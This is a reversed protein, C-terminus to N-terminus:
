TKAWSKGTKSEVAFKVYDGVITKASEIMHTEVIQKVEDQDEEHCEVLVSDHVINRVWGIGKLDRRSWGMAQLCMDSSTSQPLFALAERLISDKNEKTILSYRRHRGWPTILDEGALVKKKTENRFTVIEPIVDFFAYMGKRAEKVSIKYEDAISFESRGYSLGYVYAKVRIRIEKWLEPPCAEKSQLEPYLIPTLEDFLDREGGNFIDRFYTDGALYSLVRLEAQSYDTEVFVHDPKSPVFLRRITSERPINQMNPNRCALRGTTTGHLLFTPFVRGRSMRKRIGKVYTGYLKAERRHTLLTQVFSLVERAVNESAGLKKTGSDHDLIMGALRDKIMNLADENTTETIIGKDSLYQKVQMPSRPNIGGRKDYDRGEIIKNIDQEINDLRDLYEDTLTDLYERDVGIGNLEVYMLQNSAAVLFDHVDRLSRQGEPTAAQDLDLRKSFMEYLSYTCAVDLANYKYLVDRPIVGYGDGPGVYKKVEDDYQPAGLYEVAMHKLAHIGPREDFVYSALMTDFWLELPGLVPYLGALDFKGNQAILKKNRLLGGLADRVDREGMVGESFVVARKPAYAIGLCLMGYHNPHDYATDKEIDVEIDIVFPGQVRALEKCADLADRTTDLVRYEPETWEEHTANVKGVDTVLYPFMDGQRLCAAPHLTPIVLVDKAYKSLKGPGVRLKTVGSQGLLSEAASNGLAVVTKVNHQELEAVLRDRCAFIASKTPTANDPPRCLCANSLFVDERNFGHHEMVKDLLKGSPGTFPIGQRTEKVGPAEGVFALEANAPGVSPVFKGVEYLPCEECRAKPHKRTVNRPTLEVM